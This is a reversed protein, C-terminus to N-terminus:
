LRADPATQAAPEGRVVPSTARWRGARGKGPFGRVSRHGNRNFTGVWTASVRRDVRCSHSSRARWQMSSLCGSREGALEAGRQRPARPTRHDSRCSRHRYISSVLRV